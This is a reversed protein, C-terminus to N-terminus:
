KNSAVVLLGLRALLDALLPLAEPAVRWGDPTRDAFRGLLNRYPTPLQLDPALHGGPAPELALPAPADLAAQAYGALLAEDEDLPALAAPGAVRYYDAPGRGRRRRIVWGVRLEVSGPEGPAAPAPAWGLPRGAFYSIREGAAVPRTVFSGPPVATALSPLADIQDALTLVEFGRGRLRGMLGDRRWSTLRFRDGDREGEGRLASGAAPNHVIFLGPRLEEIDCTAGPRRRNSM